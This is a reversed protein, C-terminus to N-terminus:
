ARQKLYQRLLTAIGISGARVVINEVKQDPLTSRFRTLIPVLAFGAAGGRMVRDITFDLMVSSDNAGEVMFGAFATSALGFILLAPWMAVLEQWVTKTSGVAISRKRAELLEFLLYGILGAALTFVNM